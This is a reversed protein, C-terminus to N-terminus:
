NRMLVSAFRPNSDSNRRRFHNQKYKDATRHLLRSTFRLNIKIHENINVTAVPSKDLSFRTM